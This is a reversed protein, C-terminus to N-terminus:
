LPMTSRASRALCDSDIPRQLTPFGHQVFRRYVATSEAVARGQLVATAVLDDGIPAVMHVNEHACGYVTNTGREQPREPRLSTVVGQPMLYGGGTTRRGYDYRLYECGEPDSSRCEAFYTEFLGPGVAIWSAFDWRHSHPETDGRRDQGAPWIHLRVSFEDREVLKVKAFGNIHWYASQTVAALRDPHSM